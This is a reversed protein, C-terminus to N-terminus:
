KSLMNSTCEPCLTHASKFALKMNKTALQLLCQALEHNFYISFSYLICTHVGRGNQVAKDDM